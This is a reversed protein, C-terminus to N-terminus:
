EQFAEPYLEVLKETVEAIKLLCHPCLAVRVVRGDDEGGMIHLELVTVVIDPRTQQAHFGMVHAHAHEPLEGGSIHVDRPDMKRRDM